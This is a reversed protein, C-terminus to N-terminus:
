ERGEVIPNKRWIGSNGPKKKRADRGNRANTQARFCPCSSALPLVDQLRNIEYLGKCRDRLDYVFLERGARLLEQRLVILRALAATTTEFAHRLDIVFRPAGDGAILSAVREAEEHSFERALSVFTKTVPAVAIDTAHAEMDDLLAESIQRNTPPM